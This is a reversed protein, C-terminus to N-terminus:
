ETIFKYEGSQIIKSNNTFEDFSINHCNNKNNDCLQYITEYKNIWNGYGESDYYECYWQTRDIKITCNHDGCIFYKDEYLTTDVPTEGEDLIMHTPIANPKLLNIDILKFGYIDCRIKTDYEIDTPTQSIEVTSYKVGNFYIYGIPNPISGLENDVSVEINFKKLVRAIKNLNPTIETNWIRVITVIDTISQSEENTYTHIIFDKKIKCELEENNMNCEYVIGYDEDKKLEEWLNAYYNDNSNKIKENNKVETLLEKEKTTDIYEVTIYDKKDITINDTSSLKVGNSIDFGKEKSVNYIIDIGDNINKGKVNLEDYITMCDDNLCAIDNVENDKITLVLSPNIEVFVYSIKEKEINNISDKFKNIKINTIFNNITSKIFLLLVIILIGLLIKRFIHKKRKFKIVVFSYKKIDDNNYNEYDFIEKKNFVLKKKDINKSLEEFTSCRYLQKVKKKLKKNGNKLIIKDNLKIDEFENNNLCSIINKKDKKIKKFEECDLNITYTNRKSM